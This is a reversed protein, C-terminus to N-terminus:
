RSSPEMPKQAPRPPLAPQDAAPEAPASEAAPPPVSGAAVVEESIPLRVAAFGEAYVLYGSAVWGRYVGDQTHGLLWSSDASRAEFILGTNVPLVAIM